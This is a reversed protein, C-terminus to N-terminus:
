AGILKADVPQRFAAAGYVIAFGYAARWEAPALAGVLLELLEAGHPDSVTRVFLGDWPLSRPLGLVGIERSGYAPVFVDQVEELVPSLVGAAFTPDPMTALKGRLVEAVSVAQMNGDGDAEVNRLDSLHVENALRSHVLLFVATVSARPTGALASRLTNRIRMRLSNDVSASTALGSAVARLDIPVAGEVARLAVGVLRRHFNPAAIVLGDDLLAAAIEPGIPCLWGAWTPSRDISEVVDVVLERRHDPGNAFVAGAAFVWANRWHPSPATVLLRDRLDEDSASVLARAAMLEQLSRIEFAVKGDEVPVLLVLRETTAQMVQDAIRERALGTEHGLYELRREVLDRLETLSLMARADGSHESQIQLARGAAEHVYVILPKQQSLLAALNTNKASEREYLTDFYRSFLQYRDPPLVGARELIITTILVQLPTKMLRLMAPLSVQKEFSRVLQDRRDLDDSLRRETVLRGYAAAEEAELHALDLQQFHTPMLRETYGTPRTTVVVLLDANDREAEEVFQKIEDLVRPRIEPATVEDLGDFIVVCPWHMLWRKLTHPKIDLGARDSVRQSLWRLFDIGGEPVLADAFEALDVRMPWRKGRPGSIEIRDLAAATGTAVERETSTLIEDNTFAVRFAQTLFRSVTSKGSGAQGTVVFHRRRDTLMTPKLVTDSRAFIETVVSVPSDSVSAREDHRSPAAKLDIFVHEVSERTSGGAERFSVWRETTLTRSAHARLVPAFLEPDLLGSLEGLRALLDGVTLLGKFAQRVSADTTLLGNLQDRHWVRWDKLGRKSLTNRSDNAWPKDLRQRIHNNIADIGSGPVSSLRVNTVFILYRPFPTRKSSDAMWSDLENDVQDRLWRLNVAPDHSPHEAQKAQIVAYGDWAGRDDLDTKSWDVRGRFVAERGGDPGSGFAEVGSGLVKLSLAVTLQEFARHSLEELPFDYAV